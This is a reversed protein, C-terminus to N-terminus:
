ISINFKAALATLSMSAHRCTSLGSQSRCSSPPLRKAPHGGLASPAKGIGARKSCNRRTQFSCNGPLQVLPYLRESLSRHWPSSFTNWRRGMPAIPLIVSRVESLRQRRPTRESSPPSAYLGTSKWNTGPANWISMRIPQLSVASEIVRRYVLKLTSAKRPRLLENLIGVSQAIWVQARRIEAPGVTALIRHHNLFQRFDRDFHRPSWPSHELTFDEVFTLGSAWSGDPKIESSNARHPQEVPSFSRQRKLVRLYVILQTANILLSM